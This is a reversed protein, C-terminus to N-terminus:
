RFIEHFFSFFGILTALLLAWVTGKVWPNPKDLTIKREPIEETTEWPEPAKWGCHPCPAWDYEMEKGCELCVFDSM